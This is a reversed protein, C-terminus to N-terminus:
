TQPLNVRVVECESGKGLSSPNPLLNKIHKGPFKTSVWHLFIYTLIRIPSLVLTDKLLSANKIPSQGNVVLLNIDLISQPMVVEERVDDVPQYLKVRIDM